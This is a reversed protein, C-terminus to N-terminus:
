KAQPADVGNFHPGRFGGWRVVPAPAGPLELAYREVVGFYTLILDLSGNADLDEVAPTAAGAGRLRLELRKKKGRAGDYITLTSVVSGEQITFSDMSLAITEDLGDADFDAVIPSASSFVGTLAQDLVAGTVGDHWVVLNKWKYVPFEGQSMEAVVDATGSGGFRGPAPSARAEFGKRPMSWRVAGSQADQRVVTGDYLVNIASLEEGVHMLLPSAILGQRPSVLEWAPVAKEATLALRYLHGGITEGGSGAVIELPTTSLLAPLSYTEKQDPFTNNLLLKGTAASVVLLRGPLRRDDDYSGGQSLLLDDVGDGDQDGVVLGGNFNRKPIDAKPNVARLTWLKAGDKGSLATWNFDRGGIFVDPVGDRNADSLTPTAYFEEKFRSKWLLKGSAGDVAYVWGSQGQVGGGLVVDLVGDGTLDATRPSSTGLGELKLSWLKRATIPQGGTSPPPPVIVAVGADVPEATAIGADVPEPERGADVEPVAALPLAPPSQRAACAALCLFSALLSPRM